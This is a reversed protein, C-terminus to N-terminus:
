VSWGSGYAAPGEELAGRRLGVALARWLLTPARRRLAPARRLLCM